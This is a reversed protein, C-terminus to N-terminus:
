CERSHGYCNRLAMGRVIGAFMGLQKRNSEIFQWQSINQKGLEWDILKNERERLWPTEPKLFL